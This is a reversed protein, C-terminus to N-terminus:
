AQGGSSTALSQLALKEYVECNKRHAIIRELMNVMTRAMFLAEREAKVGPGHKEQPVQALHGFSRVFSHLAGARELKRVRAAFRSSKGLLDLMFCFCPSADRQLGCRNCTDNPDQNM